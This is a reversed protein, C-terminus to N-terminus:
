WEQGQILDLLHQLEPKQSLELLEEAVSRLQEPTQFHFTIALSDDEFFRDTKLQVGRPLPLRKLQKHYTDELATLQPYRKERIIRRRQMTTEPSDLDTNRTLPHATLFQFIEKIM